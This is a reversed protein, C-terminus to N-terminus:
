VEEDVIGEMLKKKTLRTNKKKKNEYVNARYKKQALFHDKAPIEYSLVVTEKNKEKVNIRGKM